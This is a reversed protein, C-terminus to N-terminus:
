LHGHETTTFQAFQQCCAAACGGLDARPFSEINHKTNYTCTHDKQLNTKHFYIKM